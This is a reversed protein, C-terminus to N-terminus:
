LFCLRYPAFDLFTFTISCYDVSLLVSDSDISLTIWTLAMWFSSFSVSTALTSTVIFYAPIQLVCILTINITPLNLSFTQFTILCLFRDRTTRQSEM